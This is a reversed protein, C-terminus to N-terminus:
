ISAGGSTMKKLANKSGNTNKALEVIFNIAEVDRAIAEKLGLIEEISLSKVNANNSTLFKNFNNQSDADFGPLNLKMAYWKHFQQITKYCDLEANSLVFLPEVNMSLVFKEKALVPIVINLYLGKIGKVNSILGEECNILKLFKKTSPIRYVKTGSREIFGVLKEPDNGYKKLIVRVDNELKGKSKSTKSTIELSTGAAFAKKSTTHSYTNKFSRKNKKKLLNEQFALFDYIFKQVFNFM